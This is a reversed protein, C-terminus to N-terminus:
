LDEYDNEVKKPKIVGIQVQWALWAIIIYYWKEDPLMDKRSITFSPLVNFDWQDNRKILTNYFGFNFKM